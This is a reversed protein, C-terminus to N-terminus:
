GAGYATFACWNVFAQHSDPEDAGRAAHLGDALSCGDLLRRHLATMLEVAAADPVPFPSAVVARTGRALLASVFGLVEEGDYAVEVASECSALVIRDPTAGRVDLEHLTLPGDSLELASFLPNDSRLRGHCALHVLGARDLAGAVAGATSDPAVLVTPQHYLRALAGVEAEAGPLGPGAVLVVAAADRAAADRSRAWSTASPAVATPGTHLASWPVDQLRSSPVAVLPVDGPLELPAILLARLRALGARANVRAVAAADPSRPRALRRLAFRLLDVERRLPALPGLEKLRVRGADAVVAFLDDDLAGYSVLLRGGLRARLQAPALPGTSGDGGPSRLWTARRVRQELVAQRALLAGPEDAREQGVEALEARVARLAALEDELGETITPGATLLAAARTREMWALVRAGSGSRVVVDLGLRGLEIGHGSALARLEMSPLAARHRALDALGARARALTRREDRRLRAALAAAVHGRLRVMVPGRRSLAEARDLSALATSARGLAAATRGTVLHAEVAGAAVGLRDLTVAARRVATVDAMTVEGALARGQVRLVVTRAVWSRRRQSSFLSAALIATDHAAAGDGAALALSAARILAEARMLPLDADAFEQVARAAAEGAEPLLRLDMLADVLEIHHEGLSLGAKRYLQAAREFLQLGSRLDGTQVTVWARSQAVVAFPAPGVGEAAREAAGLIRLASRLHGRQAEVVGLNNLVKVGVNPPIGPRALLRRYITAADSLRGANQHIAAQQLDLEPTRGPAMATAAADLDRQAAGLRGLEHNIAARTVLVEGLRQALHQRRAIRAAEDLLSKARGHALLARECRAQARLAVVLPEPEAAARAAALVAGTEARSGLPDAVVGEYARVARILLPSAREERM